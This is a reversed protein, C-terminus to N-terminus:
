QLPHLHRGYKFQQPSVTLNNPTYIGRMGGGGRTEAGSGLAIYIRGPLLM